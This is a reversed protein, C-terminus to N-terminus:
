MSISKNCGYQSVKRCPSDRNQGQPQADFCTSKRFSNSSIKSIHRPSWSMNTCSLKNLSSAAQREEGWKWTDDHRSKIHCSIIRCSLIPYSIIHYPIGSRTSQETGCEATRNKATSHQSKCYVERTKHTSSQAVACSYRTQTM